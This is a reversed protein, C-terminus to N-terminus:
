RPLAAWFFAATALAGLVTRVAHIAGWRVILARSGSGAEDLDTALLTDNTPKIVVLTWPWPAVILLAGILFGVHTVERWALMGLVFGILALPAQMLAGRQYAPKWETLLARDDLLLRAPQEAFNVYFAAGAFMASAILALLGFAM